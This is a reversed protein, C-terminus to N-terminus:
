HVADAGKETDERGSRREAESATDWAQVDGGTRNAVSRGAPKEPIVIRRRFYATTGTKWDWPPYLFHRGQQVGVFANPSFTWYNMFPPVTRLEPKQWGGGGEGRPWGPPKQATTEWSDDTAFDASQTRLSFRFWPMNRKATVEATLEHEGPAAHVPAATVALPHDGQSILRGDLYVKYDGNVHAFGIANSPSAHRWLLLAAQRGEISDPGARVCAEYAPRASAFGETVERYAARRLAYVGSEPVDPYREAFIGCRESAETWLGMRELEMLEAMTAAREVANPAPFRGSVPPINSGAASPRDQYWYGVASMYGRSANGDGFEIEARFSKRFGVRDPLHFRYQATQMAAKEVLGCLPLDYLGYYYWGGNFYDELGTGHFSPEPEVDVYFREDGELINWSGDMGHSILYTGVYHGRGGATAFVFPVGSRDSQTWSAHFYRNSVRDPIKEVACEVEVPRASDNRLELRASKAYPMPFRSVLWGGHNELAVSTFRRWKMGNCFFDGLPTEVSPKSSRDWYARLVLERTLRAHAADSTGPERRLRLALTRVTGAGKNEWLVSVGGAPVTVAVGPGPPALRMSGGAECVAWANSVGQLVDAYGSLGSFDFSAANRADPWLEYNVHYYPTMGPSVSEFEFELRLSKEFTIPVYCHRAGCFERSLPEIFPPKGGFIKPRSLDIRPSPEGDIYFRWRRGPGGTEWIRRICGPGKLELVSFRRDPGIRSPDIWDRNGGTRDRSSFMGAEGPAMAFMVVNTLDGVCEAQTRAVAPGGKRGCAACLLAPLIAACVSLRGRV